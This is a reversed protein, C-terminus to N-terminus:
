SIFSPDLKDKTSGYVTAVENERRFFMLVKCYKVQRPLDEGKNIM